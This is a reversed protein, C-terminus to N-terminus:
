LSLLFVLRARGSGDTTDRQPRREYGLSEYLRHAARQYPRSWLAIGEWGRSRALQECRRVLATGVGAARAAPSVALRRLEAEGDRAVARERVGPALLAVVGVLGGEDEAVFVTGAAATEHFDAEVYPETRGGEGEDVYGQTWLAVVAGADAARAERLQM